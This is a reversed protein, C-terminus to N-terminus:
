SDFGHRPAHFNYHSLGFAPNNDEDHLTSSRAQTPKGARSMTAPPTVLACPNTKNCLHPMHVIAAVHTPPLAFLAVDGIQLDYIPLQTSSDQLILGGVGDLRAEFAQVFLWPQEDVMIMRLVRGYRRITEAANPDFV